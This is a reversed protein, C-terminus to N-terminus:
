WGAPHLSASMLDRHLQPVTYAVDQRHLLLDFFGADTHHDDITTLFDSANLKNTSLLPYLLHRCSAAYRPLQALLSRAMAVEPRRALGEEWLVHRLLAQGSYV